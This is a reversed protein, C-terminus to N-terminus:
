EADQIQYLPGYVAMCDDDLTAFLGLDFALGVYDIGAHIGDASRSHAPLKTGGPPPFSAPKLSFSNFTTKRNTGSFFGFIACKLLAFNNIITTDSKTVQNCSILEGRVLLKYGVVPTFYSNPLAVSYTNADGSFLSPTGTFTSWGPGARLRGTRPTPASAM